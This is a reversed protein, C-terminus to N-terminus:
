DLKVKALGSRTARWIFPGAEDALAEIRRWQSMVIELQLLHQRCRSRHARGDQRRASEGCRDRRNQGIFHTHDPHGIRGKPGPFAVTVL